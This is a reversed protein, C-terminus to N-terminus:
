SPADAMVLPELKRNLEDYDPYAPSARHQGSDGVITRVKACDGSERSPAWDDSMRETANSPGNVIIRHPGPGQYDPAEQIM